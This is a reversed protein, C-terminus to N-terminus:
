SPTESERLNSVTYGDYKSNPPATPEISHLILSAYRHLVVIFLLTAPTKLCSHGSHITKENFDRVVM